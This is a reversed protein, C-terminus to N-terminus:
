SLLNSFWPHCPKSMHRSFTTSIQVFINSVSSGPLLFSRNDWSSDPYFYLRNTFCHLLRHCSTSLGGFFYIFFITYEKLCTSM